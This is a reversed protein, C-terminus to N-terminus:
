STQITFRAPSKGSGIEIGTGKSGQKGISNMKSDSLSGENNLLSLIYRLNEETIKNTKDISLVKKINSVASNYDQEMINVVAM